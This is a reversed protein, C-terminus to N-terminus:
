MWKAINNSRRVLMEAFTANVAAGDKESRLLWSVEEFNGESCYRLLKKSDQTYYWVRLMNYSLYTAVHLYTAM